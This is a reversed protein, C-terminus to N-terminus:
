DLEKPRYFGRVATAWPVRTIEVRAVGNTVESSQLAWRRDLMIGVHFAGMGEIALQQWVIITGLDGHDVPRFLKADREYAEITGEAEVGFEKLARAVFKICGDPQEYPQGIMALLREIRTHWHNM